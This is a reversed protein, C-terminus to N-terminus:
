ALKLERLTAGVSSLNEPRMAAHSTCVILGTAGAEFMARVAERVSQPTSNKESVDIGLGPWVTTRSGAMADVARRTERRVYEPSFRPYAGRNARPTDNIDLQRLQSEYSDSRGTIAAYSPEGQYGMVGYIFELAQEKGLDGLYNQTVSFVYSAMREAAPNDYLVPKIYDAYERYPAYDQEARYMPHFSANQWIHFGVPIERISKVKAYVEQQTERMGDSWLTEWQLLEPYRLLLRWFQVYYGDPPRQGARGARVYTELALYGQRVRDINIGQRRGKAICYECFCSTHGPDAVAGHHWAGMANWLPGQRESGRQVGDVEYGRVFDEVQGMLLNRFHPNNVCPGGPHRTTRRGHLDVEYLRDIGRIKPQPRNDEELWCFIKVGRPRCARGIRDMAEPLAFDGAGLPRVEMGIDRYYEPHATAFVGQQAPDASAEFPNGHLFLANVSARTQVDDLFREIGYQLLYSVEAQFGILPRAPAGGEAAAQARASKAALGLTGVATAALSATKVFERRSLPPQEM